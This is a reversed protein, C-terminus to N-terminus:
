NNSNLKAEVLADVNIPPLLIPAMGPQTTMLSIQSRIYPFMIAVTNKTMIGKDFNEDGSKKVLKFEGVTQLTIDLLNNDDCIKTDIIVQIQNDDEAKLYNIAFNTNLKVEGDIRKKDFSYHTFYLNLMQLQCMGLDSM